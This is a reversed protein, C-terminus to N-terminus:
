ESIGAAKLAEGPDPYFEVRQVLGSHLVFIYAFPTEVEAGSAAGTGRLRTVAVVRDGAPRLELEENAFGLTEFITRYYSLVADRGRFVGEAVRSADIEVDVAYHEVVGDPDGRDWARFCEAVIELNKESM